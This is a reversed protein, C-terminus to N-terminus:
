GKRGMLLLDGGAGLAIDRQPADNVLYLAGCHFPEVARLVDRIRHLTTVPSSM